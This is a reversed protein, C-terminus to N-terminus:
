LIDREFLYDYVEGGFDMLSCVVRFVVVSAVIIPWIAGALLGFLTDWGSIDGAAQRSMGAVIFAIALYVLVFLCVLITSM